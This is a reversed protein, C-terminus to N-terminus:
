LGSKDLLGNKRGRFEEETILGRIRMRELERLKKRLDGSAGDKDGSNEIGDLRLKLIKIDKLLAAESRIESLTLKLPANGYWHTYDPSQHFAGKYSSMYHFMMMRFYLTEVRSLNEYLMHPGIVFGHGLLPHAPRDAPSPALLGERYLGEIIGGAEGLMARSQVEIADADSLNRAALGPTHCRSCIGVMFEREKIRIDEPRGTAIGRSVNHSDGVMHCTVCTPAGAEGKASFIVGHPSLRWMEYQAHDPGMHCTACTEASRALAPDTGHKTHCLDCRTEVMHCADCGQRRIEPSQALFMACEEDQVPAASGPEHCFGCSTKQEPSGKMNRTCGRGARLSIAHKGLRHSTYAQKHCEGCKEAEVRVEGRHNAEVDSGHCKICTVKENFHQSGSWYGVIGPTKKEHCDLCPDAAQLSGHGFAVFFVALFLIRIM